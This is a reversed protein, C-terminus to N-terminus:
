PRTLSAGDVFFFDGTGISNLVVIYADIGSVNRQKVRGEVLAEQWSGPTITHSGRAIVVQSAKPRGGQLLISIKKPRDGSRLWVSFVFRDGRAPLSVVNAYYIGYRAGSTASVRASARGVKRTTRTIAVASNPGWVHWPAAMSEFSPNTFYNANGGYRHPNIPTPLQTSTSTATETDARRENSGLKACGSAFLIVVALISSPVVGRSVRADYRRDM